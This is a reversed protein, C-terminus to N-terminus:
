SGIEPVNICSLRKETGTVKKKGRTLASEGSEQLGRDALEMSTVRGSARFAVGTGQKSTMGKIAGARITAGVYDFRRRSIPQSSIALELTPKRQGDAM